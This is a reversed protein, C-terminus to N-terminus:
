ANNEGRKEIDKVNAMDSNAKWGSDANFRMQLTLEL